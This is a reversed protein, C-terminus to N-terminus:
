DEELLFEMYHYRINCGKWVSMMWRLYNPDQHAVDFFTEGQYKGFRIQWRDCGRYFTTDHKHKELWQRFKAEDENENHQGLHRAARCIDFFDPPRFGPGYHPESYDTNDSM